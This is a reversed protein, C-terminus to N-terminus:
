NFTNTFCLLWKYGAFPGQRQPPNPIAFRYTSPLTVPAQAMGDEARLCTTISESIPSVCYWHSNIHVLWTSPYADPRIFLLFLSIILQIFYVTSVSFFILSRSIRLLWTAVGLLLWVPKMKSVVVEWRGAKKGLAGARKEM